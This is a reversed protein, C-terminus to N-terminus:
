ERKIEDGSKPSKSYSRQKDDNRVRDDSRSRSRQDPTKSAQRRTKEPSRREINRQKSNSGARDSARDGSRSRSKEDPTTSRQRKAKDQSRRDMSRRGNSESRRNGRGNSESRRNGRGKSESRRNGRKNSRSRSRSPSRKEEVLRIRRGDLKTDDLEKLAYEMGERDVFEVLGEGDKGRNVTTYTIDGAKRMYDKLDQWSTKSSINEVVLRYNTRKFKGDSVPRGRTDRDRDGGRRDGGGRRDRDGGRDNGNAYEVRIRSGGNFSQGNVDRIADEADRKDDLELFGYQRKINVNRLEGYDRFLKEIDRERCDNGLNGLFLRPM